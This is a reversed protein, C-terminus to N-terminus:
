RARRCGGPRGPSASAPPNRRFVGREVFHDMDPISAGNGLPAMPIRFLSATEVIEEVTREAFWPRILDYVEGRRPWRGLQYGLERDEALVPQGVMTAFDQWQQGTVMSTGVWGDKAPEISPVEISRAFSPLDM